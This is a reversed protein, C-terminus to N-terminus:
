EKAKDLGVVYVSEGPVAALINIYRTLVIRAKGYAPYLGDLNCIFQKPNFRVVNGVVFATRMDAPVLPGMGIIIGITPEEDPVIISSEKKTAIPAIAVFDNGVLIPTIQYKDKKPQIMEVVSTLSRALLADESM